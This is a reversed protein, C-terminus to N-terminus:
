YYRMREFGVGAVAWDVGDPDRIIDGVSVSHMRSLRRINEEPYFVNGIHFVDELDEAEIAAVPEYFGGAYAAAPEGCIADRYAEYKPFREGSNARNIENNTLIVQFVTYSPM